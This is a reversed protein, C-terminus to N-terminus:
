VNEFTDVMLTEIFLIYPHTEIWGVSFDQDIM